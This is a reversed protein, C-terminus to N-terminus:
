DNLREEVLKAMQEHGKYSLHIGDNFLDLNNGIIVNKDKFFEIIEKRKKESEKNFVVSANVEYDFNIPLIYIIEPFKNDFYKKKDDDDEFSIELQEKYWKLDNIIKKSSKNYKIQLDNTGLSIIVVDVPANTRFTSLFTDAGNKYKKEVEENGAIRGPLGEQYFIYKDKYKNRLINVWKKEEPIRRGEIFNDGWTNSDGYVLIKKMNDGIYTYCLFAILNGKNM